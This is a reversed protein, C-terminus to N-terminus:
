LPGLDVPRITDGPGSVGRGARRGTAPGPAPISRYGRTQVRKLCEMFTQRTRSAVGIEGLVRVTDAKSTPEIVRALVLQEFAVDGLRDSGLRRYTAALGDWLVWSATAEVVPGGATAAPLRLDLPEQGAHLRQRAAALLGALQKDDHASGLHEIGVVRRGQKHVVQVATAGSGTKVKRVFSSGVRGFRGTSISWNTVVLWFLGRLWGM